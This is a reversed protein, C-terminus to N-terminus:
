NKLKKLAIEKSSSSIDEGLLRNLYYKNEINDVLIEEYGSDSNHLAKLLIEYNRIGKIAQNRIKENESNLILDCLFDDDRIHRIAEVSVEENSDEYAIETLVCEEQIPISDNKFAFSYLLADNKICDLADLKAKLGVNEDLVANFYAGEFYPIQEEMFDIILGCNKCYLDMQEFDFYLNDSGCEPCFTPFYKLIEGCNNCVLHGDEYAM